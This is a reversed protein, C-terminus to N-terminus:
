AEPSHEIDHTPLPTLDEPRCRGAALMHCAAIKQFQLSTAEQAESFFGGTFAASHRGRQVAEVITVDEANVDTIFRVSKERDVAFTEDLAPDGVFFFEVRERTREASEPLIMISFTMDALPALILNPFIALAEYRTGDALSPMRPLSSSTAKEGEYAFGGQGLYSHGGLIQFHKAMPNVSELKKHVWPLHYSEVFNEVIIKWNAVVKLTLAFSSDRRLTSWDIPAFREAVPRIWEDFSPASGSLNIFIHGAWEASRVRRLGLQKGQIADCTHQGAGGVHPTSVLDGNLKYAWSHYPCVIRVRGSTPKELLPSGRHSCVNHLVSLENGDRVLLLSQGLVNVPVVDGKTPVDASLAVCVWTNTFITQREREFVASETFFGGPLGQNRELLAALDADIANM